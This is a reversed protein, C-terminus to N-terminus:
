RWSIDLSIDCPMKRGRKNIDAPMLTTPHETPPLRATDIFATPPLRTSDILVTSPPRAIDVFATSPLVAINILTTTPVETIDVLSTSPPGATDVLATSPPKVIDVLVTSLPVAIDVLATSPSEAIDVLATSPPEAVYLLPEAIDAQATSFSVAIDVLATSPSEAINELATSPPEAVDLPPEAVDVLPTSPSEAIDMLATSPPEAVDVPATSPPEAVDVLPTSPPVAVDVLATSPPEAIDLPLQAVDIPATSPPEAVDEPAISATGPEEIQTLITPKVGMDIRYQAIIEAMSLNEAPIKVVPREKIRIGYRALALITHLFQKLNKFVTFSQFATLLHEDREEIFHYLSMVEKSSLSGAEEYCKTYYLLTEEFNNSVFTNLADVRDPNELYWLELATTPPLEAIDKTLPPLHAINEQGSVEIDVSTLITTKACTQPTADVLAADPCKSSVIAATYAERFDDIRALVSIYTDMEEVEEKTLNAGPKLRRRQEQRSIPKVSARIKDMTGSFDTLEEATFPLYSPLLRPTVSEEPEEDIM